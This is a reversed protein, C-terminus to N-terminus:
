EQAGPPREISKEHKELVRLADDLHKSVIVKSEAIVRGAHLLSKVYALNMGIVITGPKSAVGVDFYIMGSEMMTQQLCRMARILPLRELDKLPLFYRWVADELIIAQKGSLRVMTTPNSLIRTRKVVLGKLRKSQSSTKYKMNWTKKPM